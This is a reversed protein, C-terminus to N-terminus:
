KTEGEFTFNDILRTNGFYVAAAVLTNHVIKDTPCFTEANLIEIYDIRALPESSIQSIISDRILAADREGEMIRKKANSLSRNLCLSAKREDPSLYANRSSLALGDAERVIPSSVIETDFNLDQALQKIIRLQQADKEGFYAKNPSIINFLKAVVTCVGRFHGQRKAGCLSDGLMKVDVYVLNESPYMESTQPAFILDTGAEKCAKIDRAMDRPYRDFDENPGFQTPNVFISVIVFDNERRAREILSIHGEHLFGMTPVLGISLGSKKCKKIIDRIEQISDSVRM